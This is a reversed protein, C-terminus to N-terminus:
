SQECKHEAEKIISGSAESIQKFVQNKLRHTPRTLESSNLAQLINHDIPDLSTLERLSKTIKLLVGHNKEEILRNGAIIVLNQKPNSQWVKKILSQQHAPINELPANLHSSIFAFDLTGDAVNTVLRAQNPEHICSYLDNPHIGVKKMELIPYIFTAGSYRSGFGVRWGKIAELGMLRRKQLNDDNRNPNTILVNVFNTKEIAIIKAAPNEMKIMWAGFIGTVAIDIAGTKFLAQTHAYSISPIYEYSKGTEKNLFDIIIGNAFNADKQSRWPEESIKFQTKSPSTNQHTIKSRFTTCSLM